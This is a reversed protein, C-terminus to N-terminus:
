VKPLTDPPPWFAHTKANNAWRPATRDLVEPYVYRTKRYINSCGVVDRNKFRESRCIGSECYKLGRLNRSTNTNRSHKRVNLLRENCRPCIQSTRFENVSYCTFFNKCERKVWKCPVSRQGKGGSSFSGNGYYMIPLEDGKCECVLKSLFRHITRQKMTYMFFRLREYKKPILARECIKERTCEQNDGNPIGEYHRMSSVIQNIDSTKFHHIRSGRSLEKMQPRNNWKIWKRTSQNLMSDEYYGNQTLRLTKVLVGNYYVQILLINRTGPDVSIEYHRGQLDIM